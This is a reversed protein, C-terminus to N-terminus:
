TDNKREMCVLLGEQVASYVHMQLFALRKERKWTMAQAIAKRRDGFRHRAEIALRAQNLAGYWAEVQQPRIRLRCVPGEDAYGPITDEEGPGGGDALEIRRLDDEVDAMQGRLTKELEPRVVEDWDTRVSRADEDDPGSVPDREWWPQDAEEVLRPVARLIEVLRVDMQELRLGGDTTLHM